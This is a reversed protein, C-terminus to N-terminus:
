EYWVTARKLNKTKSASPELKFVAVQGERGLEFAQKERFSKGLREVDAGLRDSRGGSGCGIHGELGTQRM